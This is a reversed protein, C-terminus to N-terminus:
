HRYAKIGEFVEQGYHFVAAVPSLTLPAFPVVERQSWGAEYSWHAHAMHDSFVTGFRLEDLAQQRQTDSARHDSASLPFRKALEAAPALPQAAAQALASVEPTAAHNASM